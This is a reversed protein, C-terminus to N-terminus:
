NSIRFHWSKQESLRKAKLTVLFRGSTQRRITAEWTWSEPNTIREPITEVIETAIMESEPANYKLQRLRRLITAKTLGPESPNFRFPM